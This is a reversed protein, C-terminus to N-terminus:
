DDDPEVPLPESAAETGAIFGWTLASGLTLGAALTGPGFVAAACNGAAYLGPIPNGSWDLVRARADTRAGGKTGVTGALIPLAFFPPEAISGLSPHPARPDGLKRDYATGGRGFDIDHGAVAYENFRAVAACLGAADIGAVAALGALSDAEVLWDPSPAGPPIGGAFYRSRFQADGIAWAPQNRPAGTAPDTEDFALACNHSSENVFRRGAANVWIVHPLTRESMVLSARPSGADDGWTSGAPQIVPWNWHEGVHAIQGGAAAALRLGDGRGVPPSAPCVRGGALHAGVLDPDWEFGGAALVVADAVVRETRGEAVADVGIVRGARDRIVEVVRVGARAHVGAARVARLLGLALAVGLTVEHRADRQEALEVPFKAMDLVLGSGFVEDNTLVPPYPHPWFEAPTEGAAMALPAPELHRAATRGSADEAFTDPWDCTTFRLDSHAEVFTVMRPGATVFASVLAPDRGPAHAHCYALAQQASDPVGAEAMHPNNPIWVHAGSIATTGGFLDSAELLTVRAGGAAAALAATLGAGGAGVVVVDTM